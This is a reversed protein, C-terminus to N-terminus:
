LCGNQLQLRLRLLRRRICSLPLHGCAAPHEGRLLAISIHELHAYVGHRDAPSPVGRRRPRLCRGQDPLRGLRVPLTEVPATEFPVIEVPVTEVPNNGCAVLSFILVAVLLLAILKKM